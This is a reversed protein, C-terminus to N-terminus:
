PQTLSVNEFRVNFTKGVGWSSAALGVMVDNTFDLQERCVETWTSGDRSHFGTLVAGRRTLKIWAPGKLDGKAKEQTTEVNNAVRRQQIVGRRGSIGFLFNRSTPLLTSRVMIGGKTWDTIDTMETLQATFDFDGVVDRFVYRCSDSKTWIDLNNVEFSLTNGKIKTYAPGKATGLDAAYWDGIRTGLREFRWFHDASGPKDWQTVSGGNSTSMGDVALVQNSSASRIFFWGDGQPELRWLGAASGDDLWQWIKTGPETSSNPLNLVLGSHVARLKFTDGSVPVLEWIQNTGGGYAWQRVKAGQERGYGEVDLALNSNKNVIRYLAPKPLGTLTADFATVDKEFPAIIPGVRSAFAPGLDRLTKAALARDRSNRSGKLADVTMQYTVLHELFNTALPRLEKLWEASGTVNRSRFQRLMAAGDDLAGNQWNHLGYLLPAAAEYNERHFSQAEAVPIPDPQALRASITKLFRALEPDKVTATLADVKQFAVRAQDNRGASLHAAGALLQAWTRDSPTAGTRAAAAELLDAAKDDNSALAQVEAKLGLVEFPTTAAKTPTKATVINNQPKPRTFAFIGLLILIVAAMGLVVWTWTKRDEETELVVRARSSHNGGGQHLQDLAYQFNHILEDYSQFRDAPNKALTRNIIHATPNSVWPAFAQLSVAQSKVHKLAVLTASAAEFPPRGALAHFLSAGLSYIDSRFDELSGDLKEPPIYYPTGWIEGTSEEIQHTFMALGFDVIKAIRNDGFLINGPKVDRHILGHQLAARLGSAIQIGVELAQAEAVRGQLHIFDDLSGKDVLEMALYFRGRDFGTAYVRVVNSDTISATIEAENELQEILSRDSSHDKRLLKIAIYRDLGPDYAKYVVGMGGRGAVEVLQFGAVEGSMALPADCGPCSITELPERETTDILAECHPCAQLPSSVPLNMPTYNPSPHALTPSAPM